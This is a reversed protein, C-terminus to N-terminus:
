AEPMRVLDKDEPERNVWFFGEETRPEYYIVANAQKLALKWSELRRLEAATLSLGRRRRSELRLYKLQKHQRHGPEVKWPILDDYRGRSHASELGYRIIAMGIAARSVRKNSDAAWQDAIQQQSLGRELYRRMQTANPVLEASM